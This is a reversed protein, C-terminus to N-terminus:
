ISRHLIQSSPTASCDILSSSLSRIEHSLKLRSRIVLNGLGRSTSPSIIAEEDAMEQEVSLAKFIAIPYRPSVLNEMSFLMLCNVSTIM